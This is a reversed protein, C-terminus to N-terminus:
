ALNSTWQQVNSIMIRCDQLTWSKICKQQFWLHVDKGKSEQSERDLDEVVPLDRSAESRWNPKTRAAASSLPRPSGTPSETTAKTEHHSGSGKSVGQPAYLPASFTARPGAPQIKENTMAHCLVANYCLKITWLSPPCLQRFIHISTKYNNITKWVWLCVCVCVSKQLICKFSSILCIVHVTCDKAYCYIIAVYICRCLIYTYWDVKLLRM